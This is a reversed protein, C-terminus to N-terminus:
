WETDELRVKDTHCTSESDNSYYARKDIAILILCHGLKSFLLSVHLFGDDILGMPFKISSDVEAQWGEGTSIQVTEAATEANGVVTLGPM